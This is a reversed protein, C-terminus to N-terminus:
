KLEELLLKANESMWSSLVVKNLYDRAENPKNLLVKNLGRYWNYEVKFKFDEPALIKDFASEANVHDKNGLHALALHYYDTDNMKTVGEFLDVTLLWDKKNYANIIEMRIQSDNQGGRKVDIKEINVMNSAMQQSSIDNNSNIIPMAFLIFVVIAAISGIGIILTRLRSKKPGDTQIENPKSRHVNYKEELQSTYKLKLKKDYHLGYLSELYQNETDETM